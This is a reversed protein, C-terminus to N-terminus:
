SSTLRPKRRCRGPIPSSSALTTASHPSRRVFEAGTHLPVTVLLDFPIEREDWSSLVGREGDVQGASFETVLEIGKDRLLHTLEGSAVPKTFAGDLPTAYIIEVKERIGRKTFFADALFCFELPAVPCKIPMDVVNVVLRGGKWTALADRLAIAGELTYFDFISKRWGPGTLGETEEPAIRTGSAIILVDYSLSTGDELYM